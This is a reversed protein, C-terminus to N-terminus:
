RPGRADDDDRQQQQQTGADPDRRGVEYPKGDEAAHIAQQTKREAGKAAEHQQTDKHNERLRQAQIALTPPTLRDQHRVPLGDRISQARYYPVVARPMRTTRREPDSSWLRNLM